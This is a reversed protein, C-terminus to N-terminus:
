CLEALDVALGDSVDIAARALTRALRGLAVRPTPRRQRQIAPSSRTRTRLELLGLRADGLTGSVYLLDGPKGGSRLLAGWRAVCGGCALTLSIERARTFNGGVLHIRHARALPAMGRAVRRVFDKPTRPPLAWACVFWRPIAGMAALDSLNTALAKHGIDE